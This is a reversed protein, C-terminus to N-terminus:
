QDGNIIEDVTKELEKKGDAPDIITLTLAVEKNQQAVVLKGDAIVPTTFSPGALPVEWQQVGNDAALAVIRGAQEDDTSVGRVVPVYVMGGDVVVAAEIADAEDFQQEWVLGGDDADVAYVGGSADAFYINGDNIVPANWIWDNADATWLEKGTQLDLAHLKADFSGVYVRGNDIVPKSAAAGSVPERWLQDGSSADFAYVHKDMSAVVVVGDEYSPQGWVAHETEQTWQTNGNGDLAIVTNEATGVFIQGDAALPSAIIRDSAVEQSRWILTGNDPNIAYVSTNVGPSFLGKSEGYDALLLSGDGFSPAAFFKVAGSDPPFSWVRRQSDIDIATVENGWALYVIDGDSSMGAWNDAGVQVGCGVM